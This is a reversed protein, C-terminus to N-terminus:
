CIIFLLDFQYCFDYMIIIILIHASCPKGISSCYNHSSFSLPGSITKRVGVRKGEICELGPNGSVHAM